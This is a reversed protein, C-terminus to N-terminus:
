NWDGGVCGVRPLSKTEPAGQNTAYHSKSVPSAARARRLGYLQDVLHLIIPIAEDNVGIDRQVFDHSPKKTKEIPQLKM